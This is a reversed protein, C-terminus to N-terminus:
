LTPTQCRLNNPHFLRPFRVTCGKMIVCNALRVGDGIICGPGISVDPGISCGSGVTATEDIIVAGQIHEGTALLEPKRKMLSQLHLAQGIQM